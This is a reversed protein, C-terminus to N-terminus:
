SNFVRKAEVQKMGFGFEKLSYNAKACSIYSSKLLIMNNVNRTSMLRIVCNISNDM